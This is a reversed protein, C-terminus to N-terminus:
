DGTLARNGARHDRPPQAATVATVAGCLDPSTREMRKGRAGGLRAPWRAVSVEIALASQCRQRPRRLNM